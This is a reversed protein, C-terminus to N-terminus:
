NGGNIAATTAGPAPELRILERLVATAFEGSSLTFSLQLDQELWCWDAQAIPLALPRREQSLGVHELGACWESWPELVTQELIRTQDTSTPRGRGWLPGSPAPQPDGPLLVQWNGRRVREALVQNFLWSRAASLVMGREQKNRIRKGEVLLTQAQHLNNGGRGFRQEGFYNPVGSSLVQQIRAALQMKDDCQIDRLRIVFRNARHAGRRLKQGHRAVQLVQVSETDLIQWDPETGKPLYVSFWQTTVAHRDKRGCFGVDLVPVGALRAIQEALWATNEGRKRVHLLVHEGTGSPEFGLDEDVQFDEPLSRFKGSALPAGYAFPFDLSFDV